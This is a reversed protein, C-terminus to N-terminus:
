MGSPLRATPSSWRDRAVAFARGRDRAEDGHGMRGGHPVGDRRGVLSPSLGADRENGELSRSGPPHGPRRGRDRHRGRGPGARREYARRQRDLLGRVRRRLQRRGSAQARRHGIRDWGRRPLHGDRGDRPGGPQRSRIRGSCAVRPGPDGCDRWFLGCARSGRRRHARDGPRHTSTSRGHCPEKGHVPAM